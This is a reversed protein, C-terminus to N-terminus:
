FDVKTSYANSTDKLERNKEDLDNKNAEAEKLAENMNELKTTNEVELNKLFKKIFEPEKEIIFNM